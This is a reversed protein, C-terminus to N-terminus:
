KEVELLNERASESRQSLQVRDPSRRPLHAHGARGHVFRSGIFRCVLPTRRTLLQALLHARVHRQRCPSPPLARRDTRLLAGQLNRQSRKPPPLTM